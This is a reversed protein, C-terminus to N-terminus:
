VVFIGGVGALADRDMEVHSGSRTIITPVRVHVRGECCTVWPPEEDDDADDSADGMRGLREEGRRVHGTTRTSPYVSTVRQLHHFSIIHESRRPGPM